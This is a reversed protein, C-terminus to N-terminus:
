TSYNLDIFCVAKDYESFGSNFIYSVEVTVANPLIDRFARAITSKACGRHGMLLIGGLRPDIAHYLLSKKVLEMGVIATFPLINKM